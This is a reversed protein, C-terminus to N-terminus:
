GSPGDEVILPPASFLGNAELPRKREQILRKGRREEEQFNM